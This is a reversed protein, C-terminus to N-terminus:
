SQSKIYINIKIEATVDTANEAKDPRTIKSYDISFISKSKELSGLFQVINAYDGKCNLIYEITGMGKYQSSSEEGKVVSTLKINSQQAAMSMQSIIFPVNKKDPVASDLDMKAKQEADIKARFSSDNQKIKESNKIDESMAYIKDRQAIFTQKSPNLVTKNLILCLVVVIVVSILTIMIDLNNKNKYLYERTKLRLKYINM